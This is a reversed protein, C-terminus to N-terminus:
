KEERPSLLFCRDCSRCDNTCYGPVVLFQIHFIALRNPDIFINRSHLASVNDGLIDPNNSVEIAYAIYCLVAGIWLLM